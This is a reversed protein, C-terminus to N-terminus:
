GEPFDVHQRNGDPDILHSRGIGWGALEGIRYTVRVEDLQTVLEVFDTAEFAFHQVRLEESPASARELAM